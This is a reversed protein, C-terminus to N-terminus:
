FKTMNCYKYTNFVFCFMRITISQDLFLTQIPPPALFFINYKVVHFLFYGLVFCWKGHMNMLQM